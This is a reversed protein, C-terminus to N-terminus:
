SSPIDAFRSVTRFERIFTIDDMKPMEFDVLVIDYDRQMASAM